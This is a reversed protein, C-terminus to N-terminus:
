TRVKVVRPRSGSKSDRGTWRKTEDGRKRWRRSKSVGESQKREGGDNRRGSGDVLM